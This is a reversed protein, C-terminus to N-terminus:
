ETWKIITDIFKTQQDIFVNHSCNELYVLNDEGLLSKLYIIQDESYLGDEKGYLGYINIKKAKIDILLNSIDISTYNESKLFGVPSVQDMKQANSILISDTSFLSYLNQAEQSPNKPSYFGNQMAHMFCYSSYYISTTDMEKLMKIYNLNQEDNNQKYITECKSIINKFSTQLNVPAGVLFISEIKDPNKVAFTAAIMGGFSHGILNSKKINLSDMIKLLDNHAENFSYKATPNISRGEGSRDYVVVYYGKDALKKATTVEFTSSNYGPGGHLFIIPTDTSDGFTNIYLVQCLAVSSFFTSLILILFYKM